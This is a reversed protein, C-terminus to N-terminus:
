WLALLPARGWVVTIRAFTPARTLDGVQTVISRLQPLSPPLLTRMFANHPYELNAKRPKSTADANPHSSSGAPVARHIRRVRGTDLKPACRPSGTEAMRVSSTSHPSAMTHGAAERRSPETTCTWFTPQPMRWSVAVSCIANLRMVEVDFETACTWATTASTSFARSPTFFPTM